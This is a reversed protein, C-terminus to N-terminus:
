YKKLSNMLSKKLSNMLEDTVIIFVALPSSFTLAPIHDAEWVGGPCKGFKGNMEGVKDQVWKSKAERAISETNPLTHLFKELFFRKEEVRINNM